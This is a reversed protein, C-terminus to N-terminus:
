EKHGGIKIISAEQFDNLLDNAVVYIQTLHM